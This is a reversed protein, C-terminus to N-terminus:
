RFYKDIWNIIKKFNKLIVFYTFVSCNNYWYEIPNTVYKPWIRFLAAKLYFAIKKFSFEIDGFLDSKM